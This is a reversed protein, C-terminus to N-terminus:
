KKNFTLPYKQGFADLFEFDYFEMPQMDHERLYHNVFDTAALFNTFEGMVMKDYMVTIM